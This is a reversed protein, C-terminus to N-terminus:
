EKYRYGMGRVTELYQAADGLKRRLRAIHVDVTREYGEFQYGWVSSLLEERTRIRGANLFFDEFIRYELATLELTRGDVSVRRGQQDLSVGHRSVVKKGTDMTRRRLIAKVRLMLERINFPKVVYDDAGYEFGIIRDMEEGRATLMLIPCPISEAAHKHLERCVSLGDRGPLMLDLIILDPKLSEAMELGRLGDAAQEVHYGEEELSFAVLERIDDDDEVVLIVPQRNDM